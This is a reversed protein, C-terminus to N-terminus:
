CGRKPFPSNSENEAELYACDVLCVGAIKRESDQGAGKRRGEREEQEAGKHSLLSCPQLPLTLTSELFRIIGEGEM